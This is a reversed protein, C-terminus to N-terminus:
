KDKHFTNGLLMSNIPNCYLDEDDKASRKSKRDLSELFLVIKGFVKVKKSLLKMICFLCIYVFAGVFMLDAGDM